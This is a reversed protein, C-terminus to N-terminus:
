DELLSRYEAFTSEDANRREALILLDNVSQRFTDEEAQTWQRKREARLIEVGSQDANEQSASDFLEVDRGFIRLRVDTQDSHSM